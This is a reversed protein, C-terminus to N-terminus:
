ASCPGARGEAFLDILTRSALDLPLHNKLTRVPAIAPGRARVAPRDFAAHTSACDTQYRKTLMFEDHSTRTERSPDTSNIDATCSRPVPVLVMSAIMTASSNPMGGELTTMRMPSVRKGM